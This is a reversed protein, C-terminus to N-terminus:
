LGDKHKKYASRYHELAESVVTDKISYYKFLGVQKAYPEWKSTDADLLDTWVEYPIDGAENIQAITRQWQTENIYEEWKRLTNIKPATCRLRYKWDSKMRKEHQRKKYSRTIANEVCIAGKYVVVLPATAITILTMLTVYICTCSKDIYTQNENYEEEFTM